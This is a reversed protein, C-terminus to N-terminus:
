FMWSLGARYADDTTQDDEDLPGKFSSYGLKINFNAGAKITLGAGLTLYKGDVKVSDAEVGDQTFKAETDRLALGAKLYPVIASTKGGFTFVLDAGYIQFETIQKYKVSTSGVLTTGVAENTGDTYSLEIASMEFFYYAVSATLSETTSYNDDDISNKRYSGLASIEFIGAQSVSSILVLSLLIRKLM